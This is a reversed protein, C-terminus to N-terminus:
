TIVKRFLGCSESDHVQSAVAKSPKANGVGEGYGIATCVTDFAGEVLTGICRCLWADINTKRKISHWPPSQTPSISTVSLYYITCLNLPMVTYTNNQEGLDWHM